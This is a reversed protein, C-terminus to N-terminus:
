FTYIFIVSNKDGRTKLVRYTVKFIEKSAVMNNGKELFGTVKLVAYFFSRTIRDFMRREETDFEFTEMEHNQAMKNFLDDLERSEEVVACAEDYQYPLGFAVKCLNQVNQPLNEFTVLM